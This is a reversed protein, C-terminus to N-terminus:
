EDYFSDIFLNFDAPWDLNYLLGSFWDYQWDEQFQDFGNGGNLYDYYGDDGGNLTDDGDEGSLADAGDGGVLSDNGDGGHLTDHGAGGVLTDDAGGVERPWGDYAGFLRDNGSGGDLYDNGDDGVLNDNGDEGFLQDDGEGGAMRDHGGGGKLTDNGVEGAWGFYAGVLVDEHDEGDLYDNGEEGAMQDYGDGGFLSDNGSGGYVTDSGGHGYVTDNGDGGHLLDRGDQGWLLDDGDGGYLSDHGGRGDLDDAGSGGVLIDDSYHGGRLTDNGNMGNALAWLNTLNDFYDDGDYGNFVVNRRYVWSTPFFVPSSGNESVGYHTGHAADSVVYFGDGVFYHDINVADDGNTGEIYVTGNYLTVTPVLRSELGEVQLVRKTSRTRRSPITDRGLFRSLFRRM